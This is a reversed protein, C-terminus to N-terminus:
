NGKGSLAIVQPKSSASDSIQVTGSFVGAAKPSFTVSITCSAKAAVTKGCTSTAGFEGTARISTISLTAKGENTLTVTQPPSTTGQKQNKFSLPNIPSFKVAGTNLLVYESVGSHTGFQDAVTVDLQGDGNFDALALGKPFCNSTVPYAIEPSGFTGDGKGPFIYVTGYNTFDATVTPAAVLDLIGDGNMDALAVTTSFPATYYTWQGSDINYKVPQQFTGDGNGLLVTLVGGNAIALDNIGNNRMNAAVISFADDEVGYSSGISFTGDGNGLLIQLIEGSLGEEETVALDLNGRNTFQGAVLADLGWDPPYSLIGPEQFTGDGNGLLVNIVADPTYGTTAIDIKGDNNFDGLVVSGPSGSVAYSVPAQFTGDGNGLLVTVSDGTVNAIVMDPNGDHNLDATALSAAGSGPAYAVPPKFTGDGNGLFVQVGSSAELGGVAMDMFGDRNFDAVVVSNAGNLTALGSRVLVQASAEIPLGLVPVAILTTVLLFRRVM